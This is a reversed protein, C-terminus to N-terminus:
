KKLEEVYLKMAEFKEPEEYVIKKLFQFNGKNDSEVVAFIGKGIYSIKQNEGLNEQKAIKQLVCDFHSFTKPESESIAEAINEITKGCLSCKHLPETVIPFEIKNKKKEKLESNQRNPRRAKRRKTGDKGTKNFSNQQGKNEM